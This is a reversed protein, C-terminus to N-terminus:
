LVACAQSLKKSSGKKGHNAKGGGGFIGKHQGVKVILANFTDVLGERTKASFEAMTVGHEKGWAHAEESSVARRPLDIKNGAVIIKSLVDPDDEEKTRRIQALMTEVVCLSTPKTVDYILLFGESERIWQDHLASFEEQGATDLIELLLTTDNVSINRRYTDEITPDYAEVFHNHCMQVSLTLHLDLVL